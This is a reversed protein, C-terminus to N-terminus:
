PAASVDMVLRIGVLTYRTTATNWNRYSCRAYLPWTHWSGGRRVRVSGEAPGTPNLTVQGGPQGSAKARLAYTDDAHFDATWEWVNGHMDHLGFANPAFQGVPATFAFGDNLPLAQERWLPWYVAADRDFVNAAGQLSAPADGTHFQTSSGARCAHEWEAETPLRYRRGEQQSLWRALAQADHWTVNVVPHADTQAFGPNAWSYRPNRGAFAEGKGQVGPHQPDFGYGGTGDSMSEPVHGSAKLFARWQGVTVEHRAMFFSSLRVRHAPREDNLALLRERPLGPFWRVMDEVSAPNGMTFEGAPVRVMQMGLRNVVVETVVAPRGPAASQAWAAHTCAMAVAVAASM